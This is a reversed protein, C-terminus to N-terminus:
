LFLHMQWEPLLVVHTNRYSAIDYMHECIAIPQGTCTLGFLQPFILDNIQFDDKLFPHTNWMLKFGVWVVTICIIAKEEEKLGEFKRALMKLEEFKELVTEKSLDKFFQVDDYCLDDKFLEEYQGARIEADENQLM